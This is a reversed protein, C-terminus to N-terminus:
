ICSTPRPLGAIKSAQRVPGDPFLEYLCASGTNEAGLIKGLAKSLVRMAPAIQYECYYHRLFNVVEWHDDSMPVKEHTAIVLALEPSWQSTDILFGEEDAEIIEGEHHYHMARM